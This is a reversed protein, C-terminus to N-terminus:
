NKEDSEFEFQKSHYNFYLKRRLNYLGYLIGFQFSLLIISIFLPLWIRGPLDLIPINWLAAAHRLDAISTFVLAFLFAILLFNILFLWNFTTKQKGTVPKDPYNSTALNIGLIALGAMLLYFCAELIFYLRGSNFATILSAFALFVTLLM